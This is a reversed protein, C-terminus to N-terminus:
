FKLLFVINIKIAIIIIIQPMKSKILALFISFSLYRLMTTAVHAITNIIKPEIKAQPTIEPFISNGNYHCSWNISCFLQTALFDLRNIYPVMFCKDQSSFVIGQTFVIIYFSKCIIKATFECFLFASFMPKM